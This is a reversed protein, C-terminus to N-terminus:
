QLMIHFQKAAQLTVMDEIESPNTSPLKIHKVTVSHRPVSVIIRTGSVKYESALSRVAMLLADRRKTQVRKSALRLLYRKNEEVATQALKVVNGEIDFVSIIERGKFM